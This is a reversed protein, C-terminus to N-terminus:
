HSNGSGVDEMCGLRTSLVGNGNRGQQGDKWM